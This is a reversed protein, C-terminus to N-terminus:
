AGLGIISFIKDSVKTAGEELMKLGDDEVEYLFAVQDAEKGNKKRSFTREIQYRRQKGAYYIEFVLVVKAKSKKTNIFDINQKSREVKGYLGLTIADLLTSKGSGTNGFIGFLGDGLEEFNLTQKEEFSNLGEIELIIPKM